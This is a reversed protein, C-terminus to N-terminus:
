PDIPPPVIPGPAPASKKEADILSKVTQASPTGTGEANWDYEETCELALLGIGLGMALMTFFLIGTYGGDRYIPKPPAFASTKAM